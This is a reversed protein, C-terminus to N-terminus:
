PPAPRRSGATASAGSAATLPAAIRALSRRTVSPRARLHQVADVQGHGAAAPGRDDSGVAGALRRQQLASACSSGCRPRTGNSPRSADSQLWARAPGAHEGPQALVFRPASSRSARSTTISPRRGCWAQSPAGPAASWRPPRARWAASAIRPSARDRRQAAQGAALALAHQQRARQRHPAGSSSISSGSALRSGGCWASQSRM